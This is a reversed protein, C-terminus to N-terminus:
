PKKAEDEKRLEKLEERQAPTLMDDPLWELHAKWQAEFQPSTTHARLAEATLKGYDVKGPKQDKPKAMQREELEAYARDLSQQAKLVQEASPTRGTLARFMRAIHLGTIRRGGLMALSPKNDNTRRDM